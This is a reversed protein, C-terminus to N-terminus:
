NYIHMAFTMTRYFLESKEEFDDSFGEFRILDIIINDDQDTFEKNDLLDKLIGISNVVDSYDESFLHLKLLYLDKLSSTLKTHETDTQYVQYMLAPLKSKKGTLPFINNNFIEQLETSGSLVEFITEEITM